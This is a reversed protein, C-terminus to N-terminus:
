VYRVVQKSHEFALEAACCVTEDIELDNLMDIDSAGFMDGIYLNSDIVSIPPNMLLYFPCDSEQFFHGYFNTEISAFMIDYSTDNFCAAELLPPSLYSDGSSVM